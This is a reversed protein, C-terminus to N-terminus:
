TKPAVSRIASLDDRITKQTVLMLREPNDGRGTAIESRKLMPYLYDDGSDIIEGFGNRYRAGARTPAM